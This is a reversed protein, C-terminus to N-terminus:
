AQAEKPAMYHQYIRNFLRVRPDNDEYGLEKNPILFGYSLLIRHNPYEHVWHKYFNAEFAYLSREKVTADSKDVHITYAWPATVAVNCKYTIYGPRGSDYHAKVQGGAKMSLVQLFVHDKSINLKEAIQDKIEHFVPPLEELLGGGHVKSVHM